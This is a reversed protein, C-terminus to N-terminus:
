KRGNWEQLFEDVFEQVYTLREHAIRQAVLTNFTDPTLKLIKEIIHNISSLSIGDYEEKPPQEPLYIPRNSDYSFTRAIAIAGLADLRDADQLIQIALLSSKNQKSARHNLICEVVLNIEDKEVGHKSLLQMAIDASEQEHENKSTYSVKKHGVDHLLAGVQAINATQEDIKEESCLMIVNNYVRLLHYYDHSSLFELTALEEKIKKVIENKM